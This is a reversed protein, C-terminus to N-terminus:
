SRVRCANGMVSMVVAGAAMLRSVVTASFPSEYRELLRSGCTTRGWGVCINDKIAVPVGALPGVAEGAALGKFFTSRIDRSDLVGYRGM